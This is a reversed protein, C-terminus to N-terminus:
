PSFPSPQRTFDAIQQRPVQADAEFHAAYSNKLM